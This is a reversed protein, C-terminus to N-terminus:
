VRAVTVADLPAYVELSLKKKFIQKKECCIVFYSM